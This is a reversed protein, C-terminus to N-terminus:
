TKPVARLVAKGDKIVVKFEVTKANHQKMLTPVQKRLSAALTDYSLKSVDENCQKKANVYAGYIARINADSLNPPAGPPSSSPASKAAGNAGVAPKAGNTAAAVPAAKETAPQAPVQAQADKEQPENKKAHLRAKFVDRRYTGNEMEQITRLWMREYSLFKAHLSQVRFKMATQRIFTNRLTNVRRKFASHPQTPPRREMGLFYQEYSVRLSALEEELADCAKSIDENDALKSGSDAM